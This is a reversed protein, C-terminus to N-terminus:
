SREDDPAAEQPAPAAEPATPPEAPAPALGLAALAATRQEAYARLRAQWDPDAALADLGRQLLYGANIKQAYPRGAGDRRVATVLQLQEHQAASLDVQITKIDTSM